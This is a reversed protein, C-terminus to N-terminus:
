YRRNEESIQHGLSRRSQPPDTYNEELLENLVEMNQEKTGKLAERVRKKLKGRVQPTAFVSSKSDPQQKKKYYLKRSREADKVKRSDKEQETLTNKLRMRYQKNYERNRARTADLNKNRYKRCKEANTKKPSKRHICSSQLM